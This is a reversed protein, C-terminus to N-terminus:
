TENSFRAAKFVDFNLNDIDKIFINEFCFLFFKLKIYYQCKVNIKMLNQRAEQYKTSKRLLM